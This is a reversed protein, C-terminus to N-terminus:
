RQTSDSGSLHAFYSAWATVVSSVVAVCATDIQTERELAILVFCGVIVVISLWFAALARIVALTVRLGGWELVVDEDRGLRTM